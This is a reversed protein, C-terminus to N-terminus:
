FKIIDLNVVSLSAAQRLARAIMEWVFVYLNMRLPSIVHCILLVINKRIFGKKKLYALANSLSLPPPSLSLSSTSLFLSPPPPSSSSSSLSLAPLCLSVSIYMSLYLSLPLVLFVFMSGCLSLSILSLFLFRDFFIFFFCFFFCSLHSPSEKLFRSGEFRISPHSPAAAPGIVEEKPLTFFPRSPPTSNFLRPEDFPSSANYHSSSNIM